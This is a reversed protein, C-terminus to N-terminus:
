ATHKKPSGSSGTWNRFSGTKNTPPLLDWAKDINQLKQYSEEPSAHEALEKWLGGLIEPEKLIRRVEKTVTRHVLDVNVNLDLGKCPLGNRKNLCTGYAYKHKKKSTLNIVM